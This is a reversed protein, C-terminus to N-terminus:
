CRRSRERRKRRLRVEACASRNMQKSLYRERIRKVLKKESREAEETEKVRKKEDM